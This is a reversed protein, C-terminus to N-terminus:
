LFCHFRRGLELPCRWCLMARICRFNSFSSIFLSSISVVVWKIHSCVGSDLTQKLTLMYEYQEPYIYEYPFYVRLGDVFLRRRLTINTSCGSTRRGIMSLYPNPKEM